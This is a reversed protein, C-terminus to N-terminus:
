VLMNYEFNFVFEIDNKNKQHMTTDITNFVLM